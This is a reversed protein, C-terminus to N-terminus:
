RTSQNMPARETIWTAIPSATAPTVIPMVLTTVVRMTPSVASSVSTRVPSRVSPALKAPWVKVALSLEAM